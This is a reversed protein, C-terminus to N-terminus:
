NQYTSRLLIPNLVIRKCCDFLLSVVYIMLFLMLTPSGLMVLFEMVNWTMLFPTMLWVERLNASLWKEYFIKLVKLILVVFLLTTRYPSPLFLFLLIINVNFNVTLICFFYLKCFLTYYQHLPLFTDFYKKVNFIFM